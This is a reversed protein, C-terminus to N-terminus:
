DANTPNIWDLYDGFWAKVAKQDAVALVPLRLFRLAGEVLHLTDIIGISRGTHKGKIAQGYLLSPRMRTKPEVFWARLHAVAQRAYKEEETILYASVLTGTLESLRIMSQRHAIFNAPNTEGDKRIYPGDPDEPNPGIARRIFTMLMGRVGSALDATVTRPKEFSLDQSQGSDKAKGHFPSRLKGQGGFRPFPVPVFEPFFFRNVFRDMKTGGLNPNGIGGVGGRQGGFSITPFPEDLAAHRLFNGNFKSPMTTSTADPM